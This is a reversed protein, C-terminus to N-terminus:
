WILLNGSDIMGFGTANWVEADLRDPSPKTGPEWKTWQKELEPFHGVHHWRGMQFLSAMPQARVEKGRSATVTIIGVNAGDVLVKGADDSLKATRITNAAMDGGFNGEVYIVDAGIAHYTRLVAEGWKSAPTGKPTSNDLLTYGHLERGIRAVGSGIIGCQGAGGSPDVGVAARILDPHTSVRTAALIETKLLANPNDIDVEHQSELEYASPGELNIEAQCVDLSFGEWLSVGETIVWTIGSTEEDVEYRYKLGDVAKYPGSVIRNALYDAAGEKGPTKSLRHAISDTHILNQCFLVACNTAGAALISTTITAQKKNVADETDHKHDIDDFIILDPRTWDIKHGRIAKDLGAAEVTYGNDATMISRRWTRAGHKGLRPTGVGPAYKVVSESELMGQITAVHKDAQEQTQCVYLCYKRKGRAGLDCALIEAHTSKGRGRPWIAVFPRPTTEQEIDSAWEWLDVHPFSFPHILYSPYMAILRDRWDSPMQEHVYEAELDLFDLELLEDATLLEDILLTM